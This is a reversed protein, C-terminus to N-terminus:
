RGHPSPTVAQAAAAEAPVAEVTAAQAELFTRVAEADVAFGTALALFALLASKDWLTLRPEFLRQGLMIAVFGTGMAGLMLLGSFVAIMIQQPYLSALFFMLVISFAATMIVRQNHERATTAGRPDQGNPGGETSDYM